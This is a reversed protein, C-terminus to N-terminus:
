SQQQFYAEEKVAAVVVVGDEGGGGGGDGGGGGGGGGAGARGGVDEVACDGKDIPEGEEEEDEEGEGEAEEEEEGEEEWEEGKDHVLGDAIEKIKFIMERARHQLLAREAVKEKACSCVSNCEAIAAM